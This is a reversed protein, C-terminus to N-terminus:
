NIEFESIINIKVSVDEPEMSKALNEPSSKQARKCSAEYSTNSALTRYTEFSEVISTKEFKVDTMGLSKKVANAKEKALFLAKETCENELKAIADDTLGFNFDVTPANDGMASVLQLVEFLKIKDYPMGWRVRQTAEFHSFEYKYEIGKNTPFEVRKTKREVRYTSTKFDEPKAYDKAMKHFEIIDKAIGDVAKEYEENKHIFTLNFTILNPKAECVGTTKVNFIM